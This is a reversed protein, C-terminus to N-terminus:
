RAFPPSLQRVWKHNETAISIIKMVIVSKKMARTAVNHTANPYCVGVTQSVGCLNGHAIAEVGIARLRLIRM